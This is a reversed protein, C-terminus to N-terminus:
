ESAKLLSEITAVVGTKIQLFYTNAQSGFDTSNNSPNKEGVSIQVKAAWYM